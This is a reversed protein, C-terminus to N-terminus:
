NILHHASALWWQSHNMVTYLVASQGTAFAALGALYVPHLRRIAFLDRAIAVILLLDVGAYLVIWAHAGRAAIQAGTLPPVVLPLFRGFAAATLACFALLMLSRHLEPRKRCAIALAFPVGFALIDFLSILLNAEPYKAQLVIKNFRAMSIATAVGVLFVAAGLGAGFWGVQRHWRVNGTLVLTSQVIFFLIWGFFLAGHLFLVAPRSPSAHILKPSVTHSFGVIVVACIVLSMSFYFYNPSYKTASSQLRAVPLAM